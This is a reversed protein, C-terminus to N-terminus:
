QAAMHMQGQSARVADAFWHRFATIERRDASAEPSVLYSAEDLPMRLSGFPAVLAGERLFDSVISTRGMAIGLGHLAADIGLASSEFILSIEPMRGTALGQHVFWHTWDNPRRRIGILRENSIGTPTVPTRLKSMYGPSCVPVLFEDSVKWCKRYPIPGRSLLIALDAPSAGFDGPDIGTSLELKINPHKEHFGGIHRTIWLQAFSPQASIRLVAEKQRLSGNLGDVIQGFAEHISDYLARGDETLKISNCNRIFLQVDIQRELSAIQHTVAPATVNLESAADKVSEYKATLVFARLSKLSPINGLLYNKEM